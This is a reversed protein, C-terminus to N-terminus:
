FCPVGVRSLVVPLLVSYLQTSACSLAGIGQSSNPFVHRLLHLLHAFFTCPIKDCPSPVKRRQKAKGHSVLFCGYVAALAM